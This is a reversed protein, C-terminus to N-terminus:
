GISPAASRVQYSTHVMIGANDEYSSGELGPGGKIIRDTSETDSDARDTSVLVHNKASATNDGLEINHAGRGDVGTHPKIYLSKSLNGSSGPETTFFSGFCKDFFPRLTPACACLM